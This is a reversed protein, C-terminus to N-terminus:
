SDSDNLHYKKNFNASKNCPETNQSAFTHPCKYVSVLSMFTNTNATTQSIIQVLCSNNITKM